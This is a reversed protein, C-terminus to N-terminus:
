EQSKVANNDLKCGASVLCSQGQCRRVIQPPTFPASTLCLFLDAQHTDDPSESSPASFFSLPLVSKPVMSPSYLPLIKIWQSHSLFLSLRKDGVEQADREREKKREGAMKVAFRDVCVCM